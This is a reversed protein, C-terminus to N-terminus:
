LGFIEKVQKNVIQGDKTVMSDRIIEDDVNVDLKEENIMLLLLNIINRSYMQSSHFPVSSPVNLPGTITVGGRKIVKGAETLECNGGQESALDVIVSGPRMGDVMASTVLIPAKKGPVAATTIVVDSEAVVNGMMERQRTYFDEDMAKAYGGEEEAEKTELELEVFKAGLSEVQEKVAPRIDYASVIAGIRRCTAIAQLGAVGAGIVFVRAPTMTGAATMMMPFIKKLMEAAIIAAKYGSINAQSSLADMTQARSIRPVLEMALTCVNRSALEKIREVDSLPDFFGIIVQNAKLQGLDSSGSDKDSGVGRVQLIVDSNSFIESRNSLVKAGAEEYMRDTFGAEAGAGSELQVELGAKKLAGIGTPVVAVRKENPYTEKLVGIIM